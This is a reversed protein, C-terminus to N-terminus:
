HDGSGPGDSYHGRHNGDHHGFGFGLGFAVRRPSRRDSVAVVCAPPVSGNASTPDPASQAEATTDLAETPIAGPTDCPVRYNAYQPAGTTTACGSLFGLAITGLFALNVIRGSM